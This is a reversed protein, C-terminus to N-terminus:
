LLAVGGGGLVEHDPVKVFDDLFVLNAVKKDSAYSYITDLPSYVFLILLQAALLMFVGVINLAGSLYHPNMGLAVPHLPDTIDLWPPHECADLTIGAGYDTNLFTVIAEFMGKSETYHDCVQNPNPNAKSEAYHDCVFGFGFQIATLISAPFVIFLSLLVVVRAVIRMVYPYYTCCTAGYRGAAATPRGTMFRSMEFTNISLHRGKVSGLGGSIQQARKKPTMPLFEPYDAEVSRGHDSVPVHLAYKLAICREVALIDFLLVLGVLSAYGSFSAMTHDGRNWMPYAYFLSVGTLMVIGGVFAMVLGVVAGWPMADWVKQSTSKQSIQDAIASIKTHDPEMGRPTAKGSKPVKDSAVSGALIKKKIRDGM